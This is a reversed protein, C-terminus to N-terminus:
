GDARTAQAGRDLEARRRHEIPEAAAGAGQPQIMLFRGDRAVDYSRRLHALPQSTLGTSFNSPRERVFVRAATEVAVAMMSDGQLYFLERGDASWHPEIAAAARSACRFATPIARSGSKPSAPATRPTPSGVATRRCPQTSSRTRPRSSTACRARPAAPTAVIDPAGARPPCCCSAPTRGSPRYAGSLGDPRLPQPDLVSGDARTTYVGLSRRASAEPLRGAHRGPELGRARNDGVAALPIPPRGGLDYTWLDGDDFLGTTLVLRGGDPSLRPDRPNEVLREVAREVVRATGISGSSAGLGDGNRQRPM